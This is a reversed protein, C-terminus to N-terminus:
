SNTVTRQGSGSSDLGKKIMNKRLDLKISDESRHGLRGLPRKGEPKGVLGRCTRCEKPSDTVHWDCEGQRSRQLSIQRLTCTILSLM